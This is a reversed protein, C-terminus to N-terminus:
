RMGVRARLGATIGLMAELIGVLIVVTRAKELVGAGCAVIICAM